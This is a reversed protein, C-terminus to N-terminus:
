CASMRHHQRQLSVDGVGGLIGQQGGVKTHIADIAAYGEDIIDGTLWWAQSSFRICMEAASQTWQPGCRDEQLCMKYAFPKVGWFQGGHIHGQMAM